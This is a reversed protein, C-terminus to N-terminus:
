PAAPKTVSWQVVARAPRWGHYGGLRELHEVALRTMTGGYERWRATIVAETELTVAHVVLRGGPRLAAWGVDLVRDDAGGGVFVADPRPLDALAEPATGHVVTVGPVGLAAANAAIRKARDPDREVAIARCRPHTRAWEIGISGAGAGVDWLLEGPRPLLSALASARVDRKTLQGDHEYAEDPLGAALSAYPSEGRVEIAVVNLAPVAQDVAHRAEAPGGLHSLVTVTSDAHGTEALLRGIAAPSDADRSLVVIRQGPFLWRRLLDVDDETRLRVTEVTEAEWGMRARALAVSSVHPHIRVVGSAFLDLVTGGIGALLPDGSALVVTRRGEHGALLHPLGARLDPPLPERRQGPRPPLLDLHRPAGVVLQAATVLDREAAGLSAWGAAGIGVVEIV